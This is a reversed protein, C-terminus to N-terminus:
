TPLRKRLQESGSTAADGVSCLVIHHVAKIKWKTGDLLKSGDEMGARVLVASAVLMGSLIMVRQTKYHLGMSLFCLSKASFINCLRFM